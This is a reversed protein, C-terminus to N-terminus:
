LLAIISLLMALMIPGHWVDILGTNFLGLHALTHM